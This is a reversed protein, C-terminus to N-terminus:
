QVIFRKVVQVNEGNISLIYLGKSYGTVDFSQNGTTIIGNEMVEGLFNVIKYEKGALLIGSLNNITFQQSVPNPYIEFENGVEEMKIGAGSLLEHYLGGSVPGGPTATGSFMQLVFGHYGAAYFHYYTLDFNTVSWTGVDVSDIQQIHNKVLMANNVTVAGPLMLTGYGVVEITSLGNRSAPMGSITYTSHYADVLSDGYTIPFQFVYEPDQYPVNGGPSLMETRQMGSPDIKFCDGTLGTVCLDSPPTGAVVYVNNPSSTNLASYDWTQAPGEGPAQYSQTYATLLDGPSLPFQAQTITPQAILNSMLTPIFFLFM